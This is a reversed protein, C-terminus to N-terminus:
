KKNARKKMQKEWLKKRFKATLEKSYCMGCVSIIEESSRRLKGKSVSKECRQCMETEERWFPNNRLFNQMEKQNKSLSWGKGGMKDAVFRAYGKDTKAVERFDKGKGKYKGFRVIGGRCEICHMTRSRDMSNPCEPCVRVDEVFGFDPNEKIFWEKCRSGVYVFHQKNKTYQILFNYKIPHHGCICQTVLCNATEHSFRFQKIPDIGTCYIDANLLTEPDQLLDDFDWYTIEKDGEFTDILYIVIRLSKLLKEYGCSRVTKPRKSTRNDNEVPAARKM